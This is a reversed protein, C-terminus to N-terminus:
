KELENQTIIQKEANKAENERIATAQDYQNQTIQDSFILFPFFVTKYRICLQIRLFFFFVAIIVLMM